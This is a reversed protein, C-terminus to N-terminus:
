DSVSSNGEEARSGWGLVLAAVGLYPVLGVIVFLLGYSGTSDKIRGVFPHFGAAFLNGLGGLIGAVLGTHRSSVEQVFSFYNAMFAATGLAMLAILILVLANSSVSGVLAGATILLTCLSIVLLRAQVPNLGRRALWSALAGGGLNGVDAALFPLTSALGGVLFKMGRDEILFTPLWSILFHWCVNITISVLVLIWFRRLRVIEGLSQAWDVGKLHHLPIALAALLLGVMLVTIGWWVAPKGFWYASGAVLLSAVLVGGFGFLAPQSLGSAAPPEHLDSFELTPKAISRGAFLARRPGRIVSLWVAVWVFGLLGVVVFSTRWGYRAALVPVILPTLVAGVAAGSNFIGNGLSRDAPPLILANARLGCPWNFSEGVGLLARMIMLAALSPAFAAAMGALSWWAVAGAYAWRVNWRDVLYGVPVQFLAYSLQFSALVWGFDAASLTFEKRILPGVMAITQRDMYNLVTSAFMLWCIGWAWREARSATPTLAVDSIGPQAM